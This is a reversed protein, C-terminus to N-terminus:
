KIQLVFYNGYKAGDSGILFDPSESFGLDSLAKRRVKAAPIAKTAIKDCGFLSFSPLLIPSLIQRIDDATERDSRLDLRLLACNTFFDDADRHFNEITGVAEDTRKDIVTWRVFWGNKYSEKWFEMAQAMRERATYHFDDGHCNDGNFLPVAKEDSYVKLLDDTDSDKVLRLLYAENEFVPCNEYVNM